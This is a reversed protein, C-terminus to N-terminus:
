TGRQSENLIITAAESIKGVRFDPLITEAECYNYDIFVSRCGVARAAEIDSGRDGILYSGSFDLGWKRAAAVLMGPQPKRCSCGMERTHMCAYIDDLPLQSRLKKHMEDLTERSIRGAGVDPQNTVVILLFGAAKLQKLAAPADPFIALAKLSTPAYSRGNRFEPVVIVGDRDLFVARRDWVKEGVM